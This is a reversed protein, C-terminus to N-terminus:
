QTSKRATMELVIDKDRANMTIFKTVNQVNSEDFSKDKEQFPKFMEKTIKDSHLRVVQYVGAADSNAIYLEWHGDGVYAIPINTKDYTRGNGDDYKLNCISSFRTQRSDEKFQYFTPKLYVYFQQNPVDTYSGIHFIDMTLYRIENKSEMVRFLERMGDYTKLTYLAGGQNAYDYSTNQTLSQLLGEDMYQALEIPISDFHHKIDKIRSIKAKSSFDTSGFSEIVKGLRVSVLKKSNYDFIYINPDNSKDGLTVPKAQPDSTEYGSAEPAQRFIIYGKYAYANGINIRGVTSNPQEFQVFPVLLEGQDEKLDHSDNLLNTIDTKLNHYDWGRLDELHETTEWPKYRNNFLAVLTKLNKDLGHLIVEDVPKQTEIFEFDYIDQNIVKTYVIYPKGEDDEFPPTNISAEKDLVTTTSQDWQTSGSSEQHTKRYYVNYVDTPKYGDNILAKFYETTKTDVIRRATIEEHIMDLISDLALHEMQKTKEYVSDIPIAVERILTCKPCIAISKGSNQHNGILAWKTLKDTTEKMALLHIGPAQAYFLPGYGYAETGIKCRYDTTEKDKIDDWSVASIPLQQPQPQLYNTTSPKSLLKGINDFLGGGVFTNLSNGTIMSHLLVNSPDPISVNNTIVYRDKVQGLVNKFDKHFKSDIVPKCEYMMWQHKKFEDDYTIQATIGEPDNNNVPLFFIDIPDRLHEKM